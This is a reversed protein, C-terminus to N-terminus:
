MPTLRHLKTLSNSIPSTRSKGKLFGPVGIEIRDLADGLKALGSVPVTVTHWAGDASVSYQTEPRESAGFTFEESRGNTLVFRIALLDHINSKVAFTFAPKFGSVPGFGGSPKPLAFGGDRYMGLESIKLTEGRTADQEKEITFPKSVASRVGEPMDPFIAGAMRGSSLAALAAVPDPDLGPKLVSIQNMAVLRELPPLGLVGAADKRIAVGGIGDMQLKRGLQEYIQAFLSQEFISGGRESGMAAFSSLAYPTRNVEGTVINNAVPTPVLVIVAQFPGREIGDEADFFGGNLHTALYDSALASPQTVDVPDNEYRVTPRLQVKGASWMNVLAGLRALAIMLRDKTTKEVYGRASDTGLGDLLLGTRYSRTFVVFNVKLDLAAASAAVPSLKSYDYGNDFPRPWEGPKGGLYQFGSFNLWDSSLDGAPSDFTPNSQYAVSNSLLLVAAVLPSLM